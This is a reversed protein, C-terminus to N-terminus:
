YNKMKEINIIACKRVSSSLPLSSSPHSVHSFFLPWRSSVISPRRLSSSSKQRQHRPKHPESQVASAHERGGTLCRLFFTCAGFPFSPSPQFHTCPPLNAITLQRQLIKIRTRRRHRGVCRKSYSTRKQSKYLFDSERQWLGRVSNLLFFICTYKKESIGTGARGRM